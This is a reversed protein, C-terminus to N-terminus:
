SLLNIKELVFHKFEEFVRNKYKNKHYVCYFKRKFNMNKIKVHVLEGSQLERKVVWSSLCTFLEKKEFLLSKAEEFDQFEMKVHVDKALNGLASLFVEKTGSGSERLIWPKKLLTDIYYSKKLSTDSSVIILEDTCIEEKILEKEEFENEVFGIDLKGEKINELITKSNSLSKELVIKPYQQIFEYFISPMVYGGITKSCACQIKGVAKEKQFLSKAEQLKLFSENTKEYFAKGRENLVLKKGVRDFLPEGLETELSKIALSIASQSMGLKQSIKVVHPNECLHYFFDLEKFTMERRIFKKL